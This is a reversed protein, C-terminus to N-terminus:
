IVHLATQIYNEEQGSSTEYKIDFKSNVIYGTCEWNCQVFHWSSMIYHQQQHFKLSGTYAIQTLTYENIKQM